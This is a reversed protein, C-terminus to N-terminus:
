VHQYEVTQTRRGAWQPQEERWEEGVLSFVCATRWTRTGSDSFISPLDRCGLASRGSSLERPILQCIGHTSGASGENTLKVVISMGTRGVADQKADYEGQGHGLQAEGDICENVELLSVFPPGKGLRGAHPKQNEAAGPCNEQGCDIGDCM